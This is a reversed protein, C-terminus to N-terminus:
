YVEKSDPSEHQEADMPLDLRLRDLSIAPRGVAGFSLAVKHGTEKELTGVVDRVTSETAGAALVVLSDGPARPAAAPLFVTALVATACRLFASM